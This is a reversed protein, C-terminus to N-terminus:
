SEMQDLRVLCRLTISIAIGYMNWLLLSAIVITEMICVYMFHYGKNPLWIANHHESATHWWNRWVNSDIDM